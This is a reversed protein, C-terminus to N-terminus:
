AYVDLVHEVITRCIPCKAGGGGGGGDGGGGPGVARMVRDACGSCTCLHKCPLFLMNKQKSLCVVCMLRATAADGGGGGDSAAMAEKMRREKAARVAKVNDELSAELAGLDDISMGSLASPTATYRLLEGEFFRRRAQEEELDAQLTRLVERM